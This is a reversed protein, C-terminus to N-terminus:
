QILSDDGLNVMVLILCLEALNVMVVVMVAYTDMLNFLTFWKLGSNVM